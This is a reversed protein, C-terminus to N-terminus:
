YHLVFRDLEGGDGMYEITDRNDDLVWGYELLLLLMYVEIDEDRLVKKARDRSQSAIMRAEFDHSPMYGEQENKSLKGTGIFYAMLSYLDDYWNDLPVRNDLPVVHRCAFLRSDHWERFITADVLYKSKLQETLSIPPKVGLVGNYFPCHSPECPWFETFGFNFHHHAFSSANFHITPKYTDQANKSLISTKEYNLTANTLLVLRQRHLRKGTIQQSSAALPFAAGSSPTPKTEGDCTPTPTTTTAPTTCLDTSLNFNRVFGKIYTKYLQDADGITMNTARAPSEPPCATKVVGMFQHGPSSFWQPEVQEDWDDRAETLNLLHFKHKTFYGIM